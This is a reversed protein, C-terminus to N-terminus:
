REISFEAIEYIGAVAGERAASITQRLFNDARNQVDQKAIKRQGACPILEAAHELSFSSPAGLTQRTAIEKAPTLFRRPSSAPRLAPVGGTGNSRSPLQARKRRKTDRWM